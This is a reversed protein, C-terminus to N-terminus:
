HLEGFDTSCAGVPLQTAEFDDGTFLGGTGNVGAGFHM